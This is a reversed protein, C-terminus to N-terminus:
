RHTTTTPGISSTTPGGVTTSAGPPGTTSTPASTPTGVLVVDPLMRYTWSFRQTVTPSGPRAITRFFEVSYGTHGAAGPAQEGAQLTACRQKPDDAPNKPPCNEISQTIPVVSLVHICRPDNRVDTIPGVSCGPTTERVVKGERNGYLSVTISTADFATTVFVGHHSDNRWQLDLGPFSVTAERGMPYRDIYISHPKHTVIEFGGWFAANFTTTALQSVGGGVDETFEGYFVPATVFGRAATRPGVIRNLSFVQGPEIVTRNVLKAATHINIVRPQCCAHRTTFSAVLETIGLGKAWATDHRPHSSAVPATIEHRGAVIARGIFDLDPGRGDVSPVVSVSQDSHVAFTADVAPRTSAAVSPDLQDRLVATDFYLDLHHGRARTSLAPALQAPTLTFTLGDSHVLYDAALIKRAQVAAREAEADSIAPAAPHAQLRIPTDGNPTGVAALLASRTTDRDIARGSSGPVAEVRISPNRGATQVVRITADHVDASVAQQWEDLVTEVAHRDTRVPLDVRDDRFRRAVLGVVADFPNGSRGAHRAASVATAVDAHAGLQEATVHLITPGAAATITRHEVHNVVPDLAAAVRDPGFTGVDVSAVRVGPVVRGSYVVREAVALFILVAFAGLVAIGIRIWDISRAGSAPTPNTSSADPTTM